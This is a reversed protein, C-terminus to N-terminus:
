APLDELISKRRFFSFGRPTHLMFDLLDELQYSGEKELADNATAANTQYTLDLTGRPLTISRKYKTQPLANDKSNNKIDTM